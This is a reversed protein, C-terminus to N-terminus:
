HHPQLCELDKKMIFNGPKLQKNCFKHAKILIYLSEGKINKFNFANFDIREIVQHM